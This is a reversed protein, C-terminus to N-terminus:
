VRVGMEKVAEEFLAKHSEANLEQAVIKGALLVSLNGVQEKLEAIAQEKEQNIAATADEKLRRAEAEAAAVIDAAQKEGSRRANEILEQADKKAAHIATRHEEALREVEERNKEATTIQNEIYNARESMVRMLPGFAYKKLILFLILFAVLQFIVTGIEIQM